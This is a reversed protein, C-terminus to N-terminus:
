RVLPILSFNAPFVCTGLSSSSDDVCECTPSCDLRSDKRSAKMEVAFLCRRRSKPTSLFKELSITVRVKSTVFEALLAALSAARPPSLGESRASQSVLSGSYISLSFFLLLSFHPSSNARLRLSCCTGFPPPSWDSTTM